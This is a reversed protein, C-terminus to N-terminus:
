EWSEWDDEEGSGSCNLSCSFRSQSSRDSRQAGHQQAAQVCRQTMHWDRASLHPMVKFESGRRFFYGRNWASLLHRCTAQILIYSEVPICTKAPALQKPHIPLHDCGLEAAWRPDAQRRPLAPPEIGAAFSITKGRSIRRRSDRGGQSMCPGLRGRFDM